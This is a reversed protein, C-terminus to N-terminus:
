VVNWPILLLGVALAAASGSLYAAVYQQRIHHKNWGFKLVADLNDVQWSFHWHYVWGIKAGLGKNAFAKRDLETPKPVSGM